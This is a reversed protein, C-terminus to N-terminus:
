ANGVPISRILIANLVVSLAIEEDELIARETATEAEEITRLRVLEVFDWFDERDWAYAVLEGSAM